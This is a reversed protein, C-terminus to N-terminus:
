SPEGGELSCLIGSGRVELMDAETVFEAGAEVMLLGEASGAVLLDLVSAEVEESDPDLVLGRGPILGVRVAAVAARIPVASLALAAGAATVALAETGRAGDFSLVWSLVQTPRRWDAPLLPRLPRDVLRSILIEHEKARGDRKVYGGSTRGAASFREAYHVQLPSGHRAGPAGEEPAADCCATTYIMTDGDRAMVAGSAQRGIEGTELTIQFVSPTPVQRHQRGVLRLGLGCVVPGCAHLVFGRVLGCVKRDGVELVLEHKDFHIAPPAEPHAARSGAEAASSLAAQRSCRRLSYSRSTVLNRPYLTFAQPCPCRGRLPELLPHPAPRPTTFTCPM